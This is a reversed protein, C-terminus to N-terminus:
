ENSIPQVKGPTPRINIVGNVFMMGLLILAAAFLGTMTIMEDLFLFGLVMGGVPFICAVLSIATAGAKEILWFYIIYAFITGFLTMGAVGLVGTSSPMSLSLPSDNWLMLPLMVASCCVMQATPAVMPKHGGMYKKAYVHSIGYSLAAGAGSLMGVMTGSLGAAINPAFLVLLGIVSLGIGLVKNLRLRDSPIAFHALMATFMPSTGNLLAALASDITQEAYCFLTFPFASAFLAMITSHTWFWGTTPLSRKQILLIAVFVLAALTVRLFVITMPPFDELAFKIFLFSPTWMAALLLTFLMRMIPSM